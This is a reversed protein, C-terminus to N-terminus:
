PFRISPPCPTYVRSVSPFGKFKCAFPDTKKIKPMEKGIRKRLVAKLLRKHRKEYRAVKDVDDDDDDDDNYIPDSSVWLHILIISRSVHMSRM